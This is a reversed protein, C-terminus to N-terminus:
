HVELGYYKIEGQQVMAENIEVQRAADHATAATFGVLLLCLLAALPMLVAILTAVYQAIPGVSRHDSHRRKVAVVVLVATLILPLGLVVFVEGWPLLTWGFYPVYDDTASPYLLALSDPFLLGAGFVVALIVLLLVTWELRSCRVPAIPRGSVKLLLSAIGGAMIVGLTWMTAQVLQGMGFLLVEWRDDLPRESIHARTLALAEDAQKSFSLVSVALDSRGNQRLYAVLPLCAGAIDPAPKEVGQEDVSSRRTGNRPSAGGSPPTSVASKWAIIGLLEDSIGDANRLMLEGLHLASEHLFIARAHEGRQEALIAMGTITRTLHLLELHPRMVPAVRALLASGAPQRASAVGYAAIAAERQYLNWNPKALASRLWQHGEGDRHDAFALYARLYDIAANDPDLESAREFGDLLTALRERQQDTLPEEKTVQGTDAWADVEARSLWVGRVGDLVYPAASNPMLEILRARARDKQEGSVGPRADGSFVALWAQADSGRREAEGVYDVTMARPPALAYEVSRRLGPVAALAALSVLVVFLSVTSLSRLRMGCGYCESTM